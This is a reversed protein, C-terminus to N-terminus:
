TEVTPKLGANVKNAGFRRYLSGMSFNAMIWPKPRLVPVNLAAAQRTIDTQTLHQESAIIISREANPHVLVLLHRTGSSSCTVHHRVGSFNTLPERWQREARSVREDVSVCQDAINIQRNHTVPTLLARVGYFLAAIAIVALVILQLGQSSANAVLLIAHKLASPEAAVMLLPTALLLGVLTLIVARLRDGRHCLRQDITVTDPDSSVREFFRVQM